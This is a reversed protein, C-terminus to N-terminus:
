VGGGGRNGAFDTKVGKRRCARIAVMLPEQELRCVFCTSKSGIGRFERVDRQCEPRDWGLNELNDIAEQCPLQLLPSYSATLPVVGLLM